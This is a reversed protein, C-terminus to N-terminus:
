AMDSLTWHKTAYGESGGDLASDISSAISSILFPPTTSIAPHFLVDTPPRMIMLAIQSSIRLHWSNTASTVPNFGL